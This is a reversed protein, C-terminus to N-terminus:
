GGGSAQEKRSLGPSTPLIRHSLKQILRQALLADVAARGPRRPAEPLASTRPHGELWSAEELHSAGALASRRELPQDGNGAAGARGM